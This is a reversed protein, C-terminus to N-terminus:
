ELFPPSAHRILGRRLRDHEERALGARDIEAQEVDDDVGICRGRAARERQDLGGLAFGARTRRKVDV